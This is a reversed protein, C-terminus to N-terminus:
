LGVPLIRLRQHRVQLAPVRRTGDGRRIKGIAGQDCGAADVGPQLRLELGLSALAGVYKEDVMAEILRATGLAGAIVDHAEHGNFGVVELAMAIGVQMGLATGLGQAVLGALIQQPRFALLLRRQVCARALLVRAGALGIFLMIQFTRRLVAGRGLRAGARVLGIKDALIRCAGALLGDGQTIVALFLILGGGVGLRAGFVALGVALPTGLAFLRPVGLRGGLM